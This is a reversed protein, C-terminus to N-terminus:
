YHRIFLSSSLASDSNTESIYRLTLWHVVSSLKGPIPSWLPHYDRLHEIRECVTTETILWARQFYLTFLHYIGDLALYWGSVLLLCTGHPFTSFFKSFLTLLVQSRWPLLSHRGTDGNSEAPSQNCGILLALCRSLFQSDLFTSIMWLIHCWNSEVSVCADILMKPHRTRGSTYTPSHIRYTDEIHDHVRFDHSRSCLLSYSNENQSWIRHLGYHWWLATNSGDQFM